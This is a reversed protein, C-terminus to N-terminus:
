LLSLADVDVYLEVDKVTRRWNMVEARLFARFAANPPTRVTALYRYRGKIREIPAPTADSIELPAPFREAIRNVLGAANAEIAVPDEGDFHLVTLHSFPPFLLEKRVPLEEEFFMKCSHEAACLIAPNEPSFTQILVQGHVEGRGARGAVQALLQFTRELARFDPLYLGMDANLVGVLTVNPFDLGKAIMQTGILIDIDGGRFKSLVEEYKQPNTMTDSDMRAIRAGQFLAGALSEIRETGTGVYHFDAQGCVPCATIAPIIRGCFHCILSANKKHYTYAVSCDPCTPVFGCACQLQRSYGRKNLFLISQEGTRIRSRVAQILRKSLMPIRDEDDKELRMDVIEVAPLVISPDWRNPMAALAYKGTVANQWSELSPTASGLIVLAGEMRGRVVAVDRANYRPAESQKYSSDHEEDVIILKLNRFPAFLASRAGVAIDVEGRYVKMWEDYREGQTLGSHLVSVREGFRARFRMVTQPTLSIEPVLVIANGGQEMVRAIAQLYVETKGSCTVGHLLLVHPSAPPRDPALMSFIKELAAGQEGTLKLPSSPQVKINRFPDRDTRVEEINLIGEKVLARLQPAKAGTASQVTDSAAGPHLTIFQIAQARVKARAGAKELYAAAKERSALYCRRIKKPKIRGSRVASPLLARLAQERTCCYYDAIWAGLKSLSDPIQPVDGCIELIEKLDGRDPRPILRVVTAPRPKRGKGFPVNVKMGPQIRGALHAPILYDFTRDLSLNVLVEVAPLSQADGDPM